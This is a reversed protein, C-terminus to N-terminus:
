KTHEFYKLVSNFRQQSLAGSLYPNLMIMCWKARVLPKIDRLREIWSDNCKLNSTVRELLCDEQGRDFVYNPQMQWDAVLKSLDDRGAYEFDIFFLRNQSVLTNHIGVDSPSNFCGLSKCKWHSCDSKGSVMSLERDIYPKLKEKIWSGADTNIKNAVKRAKILKTVRVKMNNCYQDLSICPEAAIRTSVLNIRDAPNLKGIFKGIQDISSNDIKTLHNGEIWSTLSFGGKRNALILKPVCDIKLRDMLLLFHTEAAQRNRTTEKVDEVPYIKLVYNEGSNAEIKFANSNIGGSLKSVKNARIGLDDLIIQAKCNM